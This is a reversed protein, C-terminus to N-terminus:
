GEEDDLLESLDCGIAKAIAVATNVRPNKTSGKEIRFLQGETVGSKISVERQTLGKEERTQKLKAGDM